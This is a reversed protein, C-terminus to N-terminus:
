YGIRNKINDYSIAGPIVEKKNIVNPHNLASVHITEYIPKLSELYAASSKSYPNGCCLMFHDKRGAEVMTLSREFFVQDVGYCEDIIILIGGKSNHKGQWSEPNSPSIGQIWWNSNKYLSNAKPAFYPCDPLIQRLQRFLVSTIQQNTPATLLAIGDKKTEFFWAALIGCMMTKGISHASACIVPKNSTVTTLVREQDPTLTVGRFKAYEVIDTPIKQALATRAKISLVEQKM